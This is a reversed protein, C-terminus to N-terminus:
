VVEQISGKEGLYPLMEPGSKEQILYDNKPMRDRRQVMTPIFMPGTQYIKEFDDDLEMALAALESNSIKQEQEMIVTQTKM